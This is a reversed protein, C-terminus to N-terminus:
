PAPLVIVTIRREKFNGTIAGTVKYKMTMTHDGAATATFLTHKTGPTWKGNGNEIGNADAAALDSSSPGAVDVSFHVGTAGEASVFSLAEAVILASQGAELHVTVAPGVTTLDTYSTSTTTQSTSVTAQETDNYAKVKTGATPM